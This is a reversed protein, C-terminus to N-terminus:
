GSPVHFVVFGSVSLRWFISLSTIVPSPNQPSSAWTALSIASFTHDARGPIKMRISSNSQHFDPCFPCFLTKTGFWDPCVPCFAHKQGSYVATYVPCVPCVPCILQKQGLNKDWIIRITSSICAYFRSLITIIKGGWLPTNKQGMKQGMKQSSRTVGNSHGQLLGVGGPKPPYGPQLWGEWLDM